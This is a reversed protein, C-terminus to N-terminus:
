GVEDGRDTVGAAAAEYRRFGPLAAATVVVGVVCLAGGSVAAFRLGALSAVIGAELDGLLPGSSYSIMEVGALRGRLHDPITQHWITMRFLGSVMDAAGATALAVIALPVSPALGFGLMGVGWVGAAWLIAAGHRRVRAMWASTLTVLTSGISPAAYLLGLVEPGGGYRETVFAPFLARSMGFAMAIMDTVYTGLLVPDRVAYRVGAVIAALSVGDAEVPAPSPRMLSLAVVAVVSTLADVAFTLPIGIVALMVGALAPGALMGVNGYVSMLANAAPIEGRDVIRPVMAERSPRGLGDLGAAIGALVYLPWVRPSASLANVALLLAVAFQGLEARRAIVRRDRADAFAGGLLSTVLLPVLEVLGLLGVAITSRTLEYVQFPVAVYTIQAGLFSVAMGSWLLRFDRHRRLPTLDLAFRRRPTTGPHAPTEPGPVPPLDM